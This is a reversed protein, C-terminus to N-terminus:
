LFSGEEPDDAVRRVPNWPFKGLKSLIRDAVTWLVLLLIAVLAAATNM